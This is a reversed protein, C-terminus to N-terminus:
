MKGTFISERELKSLLPNVSPMRKQNGKLRSKTFLEDARYSSRVLPGAAVQEFGMQRAIAAWENFEDPPVFRAVPHHHKTPPLYQGLTLYQCGVRKLDFLTESIEEPTEGLGLMMGSKVPVRQWTTYELIGLSRRYHAGPRVASYLRAVTEVNHNLVNPQANCVAQLAPISGRFDPILVEIRTHPCRKRVQDITRSFQEAGGDVLDDRTVSTIVVYNLNLEEAARAIREPEETDVAQPIGRDVACFRCTRTCRTGLILFTATGRDFCEGLNPCRASQCVTALQLQDLLREMQHIPAPNPAPRILWDPHVNIRQLDGPQDGYGFSKQFEQIFIKKVEALNVSQGLLAQLSTIREGRHGCPVIWKFGDLNNNVNLAIGHYTIWKKVAIGVSAIKGSDVWVGPRGNKVMPKLGYTRVVAAVVELLTRLYRHLDKAALKIIPYAVLQGPGHFTAQGGRDVAYFEVGRQHLETESICLDKQSGSRGLTVVSPHEVFILCDPASGNIREEVLTLQRQFADNYGLRGWDMVELLV